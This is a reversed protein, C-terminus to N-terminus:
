EPMRPLSHASSSAFPAVLRGGEESGGEIEARLSRLVKCAWAWHSARRVGAMAEVASLYRATEPMGERRGRRKSVM